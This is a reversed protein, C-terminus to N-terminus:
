DELENNREFLYLAMSELNLSYPIKILPLLAHIFFATSSLTLKISIKMAFVLHHFYSVKKDRLHKFM